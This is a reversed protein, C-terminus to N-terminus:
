TEERAMLISVRLMLGPCLYLVTGPTEESGSEPPSKLHTCESPTDTYLVYISLM